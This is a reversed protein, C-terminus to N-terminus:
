NKDVKNAYPSIFHSIIYLANESPIMSLISPRYKVNYTRSDSMPIIALTKGSLLKTVKTEENIFHLYSM